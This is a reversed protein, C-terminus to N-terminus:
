RGGDIRVRPRQGDWTRAFAVDAVVGVTTVAVNSAVTSSGDLTMLGIVFVTVMVAVCVSGVGAFLVADTSRVIEASIASRFMMVPTSSEFGFWPSVIWM